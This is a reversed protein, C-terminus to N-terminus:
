KLSFIYGMNLAESYPSNKPVAWGWMTNSWKEKALALHSQGGSDRYDKKILDMATGIVQM